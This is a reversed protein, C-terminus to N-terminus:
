KVTGNWGQLFFLVNILFVNNGSKQFIILKLKVMM